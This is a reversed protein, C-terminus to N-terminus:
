CNWCVGVEEEILSFGHVFSAVRWRVVCASRSGKRLATKFGISHWKDSM